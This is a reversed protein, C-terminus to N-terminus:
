TKHSQRSKLHWQLEMIDHSALISADLRMILRNIQGTFHDAPKFNSVVLRSIQDLLTCSSEQPFLMPMVSRQHQFKFRPTCAKLQFQNVNASSLRFILLQLSRQLM